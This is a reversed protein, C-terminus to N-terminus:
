ESARARQTLRISYLKEGNFGVSLVSRSTEYVLFSYSDKETKTPKGLVKVFDDISSSASLGGDLHPLVPEYCYFSMVSDKGPDFIVNLDAYIFRPGGFCNSWFGRPKGWRTVVEQMTMGLRMGSLEGTAKLKDLNIVANTLKPVSNNTDVLFPSTIHVQQGDNNGIATLFRRYFGDDAALSSVCYFMAAVITYQRLRNM